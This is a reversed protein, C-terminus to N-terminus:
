GEVSFTTLVTQGNSFRIKEDIFSTAFHPFAAVLADDQSMSAMLDEVSDVTARNLMWDHIQNSMWGSNELYQYFLAAPYGGDSSTYLPLGPDYDEM